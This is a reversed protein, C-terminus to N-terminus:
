RKRLLTLGDAVPLMVCDVRTDAAVQDNFA